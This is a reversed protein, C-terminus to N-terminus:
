MDVQRSYSGINEQVIPSRMKTENQANASYKYQVISFGNLIEFYVVFQRSFEEM